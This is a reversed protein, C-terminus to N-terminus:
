PSTSAATGAFARTMLDIIRGAAAGDGFPHQWHNPAELQQRAARLIAAPNTGALINAGIAVTEPRETNDRLTVCPVGLISSEEQIGGSDTLVLRACDLLHLFDLYSLPPVLRVGDTRLRHRELMLRSRPHIPFLVPLGLDRAISAAGNLIGQFREPQDVNEPRHATLPIYAGPAIGMQDLVTSSREAITRHTLVADVITNGTVFIRKPAIGETRLGAAASETPAFLRDSIHDAVIRNMEEPMARDGSRLGAEIHGVPIHLKGAALAGALVTNTDGLVLIADPRDALLVHEIGQLMRGTQEGHPGSGVALNYNPQPLQLQEFFIGDMEYSYHQGTHLLYFDRCLRLVPAM